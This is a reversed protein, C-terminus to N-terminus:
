NQLFVAGLLQALRDPADFLVRHGAQEITRVVLQPCATMLEQHLAMARSDQDGTVWTLSQKPHNRLFPRFDKQRGLSWNVLAESLLPRQYDLEHRNEPQTRSNKFVEQKNWDQVLLDWSENLFRTSWIQDNQIRASRSKLAESSFGPNTSILVGSNFLDPSTELAHLALRGGLSYGVLAHPGPGLENRVWKSFNYGWTEFSNEPSLYPIAFYDVSYTALTPSSARLRLFTQEWDSPRGLFGHLFVLSL